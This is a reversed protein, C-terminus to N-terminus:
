HSSSRIRGVVSMLAEAEQLRALRYNKWRRLYRHTPKNDYSTRLGSQNLRSEANKRRAIARDLGSLTQISYCADPFADRHAFLGGHRNSFRYLTACRRGTIPCIFYFRFGGLHVPLWVISVVQCISHGNIEGTIRVSQSRESFRVGVVDRTRLAVAHLDFLYPHTNPKPMNFVFSALSLPPHRM